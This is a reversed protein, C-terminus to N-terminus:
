WFKLRRIRKLLWNPRSDKEKIKTNAREWLQHFKIYQDPNNAEIVVYTNSENGVMSTMYDYSTNSFYCGSEKVIHQLQLMKKTPIYMAITIM